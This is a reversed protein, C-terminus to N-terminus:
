KVVGDSSTLAVSPPFRRPWAAQNSSFLLLQSINEKGDNVVIAYHFCFPDEHCLQELGSADCRRELMEPLWAPNSPVGAFWILLV